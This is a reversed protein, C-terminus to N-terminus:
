ELMVQTAVSLLTMTKKDSAQKPCRSKFRGKKSSRSFNRTITKLGHSAGIAILKVAVVDIEVKSHIIITWSSAM